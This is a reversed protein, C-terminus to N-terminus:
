RRSAVNVCSNTHRMCYTWAYRRTVRGLKGRAVPVSCGRRAIMWPWFTGEEGRPADTTTSTGSGKIKVLEDQLEEKVSAWCANMRSMETGVQQSPESVVAGLQVGLTPGTSARTPWTHSMALPADRVYGLVAESGWRGVLQIAWTDLGAVALSQAGGVRLSHGTMGEPSGATTPRSSGSGSRDRGHGPLRKSSRSIGAPSLRWLIGRPFGVGSTQGSPGCRTRRAHRQWHARRAAALMTRMTRLAAPDAKSAPLSWTAELGLPGERFRILAARATALQVERTLWWSRAILARRPALPGRPHLPDAARPLRQLREIPIERMKQPPGIDRPCSRKADRLARSNPAELAQGQRLMSASRRSSRTRRDIIDRRSPQELVAYWTWLCHCM